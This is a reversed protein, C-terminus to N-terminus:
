AALVERVARALPAIPTASAFADADLWRAESHEDSLIPEGSIWDAVYYVILMPVGARDTAFAAWPRPEIRVELGTEEGVERAAAALPDEGPELRGSVAEWIGPAADKRLSRKLALVAGARRVLVCVAGVFLHNLPDEM